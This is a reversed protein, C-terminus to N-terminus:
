FVNTGDNNEPIQTNQVYQVLTPYIQNCKNSLKSMSLCCVLKCENNCSSKNDQLDSHSIFAERNMLIAFNMACTVIVNITSINEKHITANPTPAGFKKGIQTPKTPVTNPTHAFGGELIGFFYIFTHNLCCSFIHRGSKASCDECKKTDNGPLVTCQKVIPYIEWSFCACTKLNGDVRHFNNKQPLACRIYDKKYKLIEKEAWNYNKQPQNNM